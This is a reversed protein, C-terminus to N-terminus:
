AERAGEELQSVRRGLEALEEEKRELAKKAEALGATVKGRSPSPGWNGNLVPM